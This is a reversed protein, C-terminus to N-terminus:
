ACDAFVPFACLRSNASYQCCLVWGKDEEGGKQKLNRMRDKSSEVGAYTVRAVALALCSPSMSVVQVHSREFSFLREILM